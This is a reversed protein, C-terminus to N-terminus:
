VGVEQQLYWNLPLKKLCAGIVGINWLPHPFSSRIGLIDDWNSYRPDTREKGWVNMTSVLGELSAIVRFLEIPNLLKLSGTKM